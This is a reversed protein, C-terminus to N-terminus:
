TPSRLERESNDTRAVGSFRSSQLNVAASRPSSQTKGANPTDNTDVTVGVKGQNRSGKIRFVPMTMICLLPDLLSDLIPMSMLVPRKGIVSSDYALALITPMWCIFFITFNAVIVALARKKEQLRRAAAASSTSTFQHRKICLHRAIIGYCWCCVLLVLLGFAVFLRNSLLMFLKGRDALAPDRVDQLLQRISMCAFLRDWAYMDVIMATAYAGFVIVWISMASLITAKRGRLKSGLNFNPYCAVARNIATLAHCSMAVAMLCVMTFSWARCLRTQTESGEVTLTAMRYVMIPYSICDLFFNALAHNMLLLHFSSKLVTPSRICTSLVWLNTVIAAFLTTITYIIMSSSWVTFFQSIHLHYAFSARRVNETSVDYTLSTSDTSVSNIFDTSFNEMVITVTTMDHLSDNTFHEQDGSLQRFGSM